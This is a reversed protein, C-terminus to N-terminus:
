SRVGCTSVQDCTIWLGFRDTPTDRNTLNNLRYLLSVAVRNWVWLRDYKPNLRKM